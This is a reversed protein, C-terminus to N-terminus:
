AQRRRRTSGLVGCVLSGFLFASPEPVASVTDLFGDNGSGGPAKIFFELGGFSSTSRGPDGYTFNTGSASEANGRRNVTFSYFSSGIDSEFHFDYVDDKAFTLGGPEFFSGGDNLKLQPASQSFKFTLLLQSSSDLINVGMESGTFGGGPTVVDWGARISFAMSVTTGASVISSSLQRSATATGYLGLSHTGDIKSADSVYNGGAISWPASWGTGGSTSNSDFNDEAILVASARDSLVTGILLAIACVGCYFQIKNRMM